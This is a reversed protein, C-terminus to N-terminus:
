RVAGPEDEEVSYSIQFQERFTATGCVLAQGAADRLVYERVLIPTGAPIALHRASAEVAGAARIVGDIRAVPRGVETALIAYMSQSSIADVSMRAGVDLPMYRNELVAPVDQVLRLRVLNYIETGEDLGLQAAIDKPAPIRTFSVLRHEVSAGLEEVQEEFSRIRSPEQRVKLVRPAVFSGRGAEKVITGDFTLQQLAKVVTSRTTDFRRALEMESPLKDGPEYTGAKIGERISAQIRAYLPEPARGMGERGANKVM